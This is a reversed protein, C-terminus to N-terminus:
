RISFFFLNHWGLCLLIWFFFPCFHNIAWDKQKFNVYPYIGLSTSTWSAASGFPHSFLSYTLFNTPKHKRDGSALDTTDVNREGLGVFHTFLTPLLIMKWIDGSLAHFHFTTECMEAPTKPWIRQHIQCVKSSIKKSGSRQRTTTISGYEYINSRQKGAKRNGLIVDVSVLGRSKKTMWVASQVTWTINWLRSSNMYQESAISSFDIVWFSTNKPRCLTQFYMSIYLPFNQDSEKTVWSEKKNWVCSFGQFLM